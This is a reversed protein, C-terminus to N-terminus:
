PGGLKFAMTVLNPEFAVISGQGYKLDTLAAFNIGVRAAVLAVPLFQAGIPGGCVIIFQGETVQDRSVYLRYGDDFDFCHQPELVRPDDGSLMVDVLAHEFRDRMQEIPEPRFPIM